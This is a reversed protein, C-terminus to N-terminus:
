HKAIMLIRRIRKILRLMRSAKAVVKDIHLNSRCYHAIGVSDRLENVEELVSNDLFFNSTFPQKKKTIRMIKCKKVDFDMFSRSSWEHLNNLNEQFLNQDSAPDIIRSSKCDDAYLAITNRPLVAEPLDSIFM